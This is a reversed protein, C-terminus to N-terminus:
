KERRSKALSITDKCNESVFSPTIVSYKEDYSISKQEELISAHQKYKLALALSAILEEESCTSLLELATDKSFTLQMTRKGFLNRRKILHVKELIGISMIANEIDVNPFDNSCTSSGDYSKLFTAFTEENIKTVDVSRLASIYNFLFEISDM